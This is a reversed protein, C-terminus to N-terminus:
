NSRTVKLRTFVRTKGAPLTGSITTANNVDPVLATWPETAGLDDSEEISYTVDGNAVAEAGKTFSLVNGTLTGATGPTTPSTGLAYEVLNRIGDGDADADPLAGPIGNAAAWSAYNGAAGVALSLRGTAESFTWTRNGDQMTWVDANEVFTSGAPGAAPIIEVASVKSNDVVTAFQVALSGGLTAPVTFEKVIAVNRGGAESWIDFDDLVLNGNIFVDFKRAGASNHFIEAFHLRVLYGAGAGLGSFNYTFNGNRETQYAEQPAPNTVASTDVPNGTPGAAPFTGGGSAFSDDENFPAYEGFGSNVAYSTAPVYAQNVLQFSGFSENLNGNDVLTWSNGDAIAADSLDLIFRGDLSVFGTQVETARISNTVGNAGPRFRMAGSASLVLSVGPQVITTTGLFSNTGSLTVTGTETGGAIGLNLALTGGGAGDRLTGSFTRDTSARISLTSTTGAAGHSTVVGSGTLSGIDEMVGGPLDLTGNLTLTGGPHIVGTPSSGGTLLTAGAAVTADFFLNGPTNAELTGRLLSLTFTEPTVMPGNIQLKHTGTKALTAGFGSRLDLTNLVVDGAAADVSLGGVTNDFQLPLSFTQTTASENLISKGGFDIANGQLQFAGATADFRIGNVAFTGPTLTATDFDTDLDNTNTTQVTGSFIFLDGSAPAQDWNAPASWDADPSAGGDWKSVAVRGFSLQGTAESFTFTGAGTDYQWLGSGPSSEAFPAEVAFTGGFTENLVGVDVLTWTDGNVPAAAATDIVLTGNLTVAGATQAAVATIRNSVPAGLGDKAPSFRLKGTQALVLKCNPQRFTTSGTYTNVGSLTLTQTNTGGPLGLDLATVAGAEAGDRIVGSFTRDESSRLRLTTVSGATGHNTVTGSGLLNGVDETVGGVLDLTGNLTLRGGNHIIGNSTSGETIMTGGANVTVSFFLNAAGNAVLRGANVVPFYTDPGVLPGNVTLTGPGNKTLLNNFGSYSQIGGITIDGSVCDVTVGNTNGSQTQLVTQLTQLNTSNCVISKGTIRIDNGSVTFSGATADFTISNVQFSGGNATDLDNTCTTQVTGAFVLDDGSVPAVDGVWNQPNSWNPDAGGGDWTATAANVAPVAASMLLAAFSPLSLILSSSAQRQHSLHQVPKM